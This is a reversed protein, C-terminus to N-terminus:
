RKIPNRQSSDIKSSESPATPATPAPAAAAPQSEQPPPLYLPGKQGCGALLLGAALAMGVLGKQGRHTRWAPRAASDGPLFPSKQPRNNSDAGWIRRGGLIQWILCM